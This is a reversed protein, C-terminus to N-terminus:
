PRAQQGIRARGSLGLLRDLLAAEGVDLAMDEADFARAARADDLHLLDIGDSVEASIREPLIDALAHEVLGAGIAGAAM